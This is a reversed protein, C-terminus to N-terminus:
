DVIIFNKYGFFQAIDRLFSDPDKTGSSPLSFFDSMCSRAAHARKDYGCGGAKHGTWIWKNELHIGLSVYWRNSRNSPKGCDFRALEFPKGKKTIILSYVSYSDNMCDLNREGNGNLAYIGILKDKM